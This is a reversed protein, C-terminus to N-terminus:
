VCVTYSTIVIGLQEIYLQYLAKSVIRTDLKTKRDIQGDASLISYLNSYLGM